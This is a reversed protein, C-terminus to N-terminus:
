LLAFGAAAAGAFFDFYCLLPFFHRKWTGTASAGRVHPQDDPSNDPM